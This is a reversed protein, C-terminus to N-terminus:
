MLQDSHEINSARLLLSSSTVTQQQYDQLSGVDEDDGDSYHSTVNMVQEAKDAPLLLRSELPPPPLRPVAVFAVPPM